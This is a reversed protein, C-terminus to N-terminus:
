DTYHSSQLNSTQPIKTRNRLSVLIKNGQGVEWVTESIWEAKGMDVVPSNEWPPLPIFHSIGSSSWECWRNSFYSIIPAMVGGWKGEHCKFCSCKRQQWM